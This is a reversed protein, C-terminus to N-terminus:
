LLSALLQYVVLWSSTMSFVFQCGFHEFSWLRCEVSVEVSCLLPSFVSDDSQHRRRGRRFVSGLWLYPSVVVGVLFSWVVLMPLSPAGWCHRWSPFCRGLASGHDADVSTPATNKVRLDALGFDCRSTWRIWTQWTVRQWRSGVGKIPGEPWHFIWSSVGLLCPVCLSWGWVIGHSIHSGM